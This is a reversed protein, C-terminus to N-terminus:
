LNQNIWKLFYSVRTYIGTQGCSDGYSVIGVLIYNEVGNESEKM